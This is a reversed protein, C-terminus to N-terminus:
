LIEIANVSVEIAKKQLTEGDETIKHYFRSQVRGNLKLNTGVPFQKMYRANREWTICPIYSSKGYDRNIAVMIDSIERGFPTTRYIPAKCLYGNLSVNNEYKYIETLKTIEKAFAFLKLHSGQGENQNYSRFNGNIQIKDAIKIEQECLIRESIIVPVEDLVGSQRLIGIDFTFFSEGFTKHSLKMLSIVDGVLKIESNETNM